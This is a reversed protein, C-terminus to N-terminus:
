NLQRKLYDLQCQNIGFDLLDKNTIGKSGYTHWRLSECLLFKSRSNSNALKIVQNAIDNPINIFGSFDLYYCIDWSTSPINSMNDRCYKEVPEGREKFRLGEQINVYCKMKNALIKLSSCREVLSPLDKSTEQSKYVDVNSETGQSYQRCMQDPLWMQRESLLDCELDNKKTRALLLVCDSFGPKGELVLCDEKNFIEPKSFAEAIGSLCRIKIEDPLSKCTDLDATKISYEVKCQNVAYEKPAIGTDGSDYGVVNECYKPNNKSIALQLYYSYIKNIESDHCGGFDCVKRETKSWPKLSDPLFTVIPYVFKNFLYFAGVVVILVLLAFLVAKKRWPKTSKDVPLESSIAQSAKNLPNSDPISSISSPSQEM